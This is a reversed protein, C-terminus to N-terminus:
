FDFSPATNVQLPTIPPDGKGRISSSGACLSCVVKHACSLDLLM